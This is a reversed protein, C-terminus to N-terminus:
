APGTPRDSVILRVAALLSTVVPAGTAELAHRHHSGGDYLIGLAGVSRAADLDDLSDGVLAVDTGALGLAALHERLHGAKYASTGARSGDVRRLAADLGLQRVVPMLSDHSWMSLLSQSLGAAGALAMAERASDALGSRAAHRTYHRHYGADIREWEADTVPRGLLRDYALRLPRTYATRYADGDVAPGGIEAMLDNVAALVAAADDFLTGNWDWVVHTVV